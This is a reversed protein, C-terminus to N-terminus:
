LAVMTVAVSKDGSFLAISKMTTWSKTASEPARVGAKCDVCVMSAEAPNPSSEM